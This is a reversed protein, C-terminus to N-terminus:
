RELELEHQLRIGVLFQRFGVAGDDSAADHNLCCARQFCNLIRNSFAFPFKRLVGLAGL